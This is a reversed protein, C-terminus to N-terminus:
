PCLKVKERREVINQENLSKLYRLHNDVCSLDMFPGHKPSNLHKQSSGEKKKGTYLGEVEKEM